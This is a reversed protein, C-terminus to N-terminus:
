KEGQLDIGEWFDAFLSEKKYREAKKLTDVLWEMTKIGEEHTRFGQISYADHKVDDYLRIWMKWQGHVERTIGNSITVMIELHINDLVDNENKAM